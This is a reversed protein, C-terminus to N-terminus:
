IHSSNQTQLENLNLYRILLRKLCFLLRIILKRKIKQTQFYSFIDNNVKVNFAKHRKKKYKLRLKCHLKIITLKNM